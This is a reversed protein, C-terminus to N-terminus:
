DKKMYSNTIKNTHKCVKWVIIGFTQKRDWLDHYMQKIRDCNSFSSAKKKRAKKKGECKIGLAIQAHNFNTFYLQLIIM